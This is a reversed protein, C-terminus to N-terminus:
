KKNVNMMARRCGFGENNFLEVKIKKLGVYRARLSRVTFMSVMMSITYNFFYPVM